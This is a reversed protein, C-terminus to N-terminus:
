ISELGPYSSGILRGLIGTGLAPGVGLILADQDDGEVFQYSIGGGTADGLLRGSLQAFELDPGPAPVVWELTYSARGHQIYRISVGFLTAAIAMIEEAAADSNNVAMRVSLVLRYQDDDMFGRLQGVLQGYINDLQVGEANALLTELLIEQQFDEHVQVELNLAKVLEQLKTLTIADLNDYYRSIVDRQYNSCEKGAM